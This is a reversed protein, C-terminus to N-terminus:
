RLSLRDHEDSVEQATKLIVDNVNFQRLLDIASGQTNPLWHLYRMTQKIDSHGLYKQLHHIPLGQELQHSAYAHRLSHIGGHKNIGAQHKARTFIKQASSIGLPRIHTGSCFLFHKPHVVKWYHRLLNLLSKSVPIHRDKKGKGQIVRLISRKSDVQEQTVAVLESVRLGCGYCLSLLALNKINRTAHLIKYVEHQNLLLPIKQPRKPLPITQLFDKKGLVQGYFFKLGMMTQQVTSASWNRENATKILWHKVEDSTIQEPSRHYYGSLKTVAILYAQHTKPSFQRFTMLDIMKQRLPNM